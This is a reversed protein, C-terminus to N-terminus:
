GMLSRTSDLVKDIAAILIEPKIPKTVYDDMGAALCKEREGQMASATLAIIPLHSQDRERRRIERTAEYGDMEPMHCDMLILDYAIHTIAELVELGNAVVNVRYGLKEMQRQAVRQNIVNDEAILIKLPAQSAPAPSPPPSAEAAQRSAEREQGAVGLVSWITKRLQKEKLPKVVQAAIEQEHLQPSPRRNKFPTLLVIPVRAILADAKISRAVELGDLDPMRSALIMVDYPEGERAAERLSDLASRGSDVTTPRMEWATTWQSIILRNISSDDAILVRKGNSLAPLPVSVAGGARRKSLRVTFWFTAGQGPESEVGIEGGMIQVLQRSIALGLGTGGYRRTTSTDAQSFSQFLRSKGEASLGIGTDIVEFRLLVGEDIESDVKVDLLVEGRETFKIANGILNLLVQRIRGPDGHLENPVNPRVLCALELGKAEAREILLEVVEQTARRLDFDIAELDLRGAEIKSFDLIDNVITLLADASHRITTTYDHQEGTLETDLLLGAMGIVGNMPTRIEHSMNALFESKARTAMEAAEKAAALEGVAEHLEENRQEVITKATELELTREKIRASLQLNHRRLQRVRLRYLGVGVMCVAVTCATYFWGTQYFRPAIYFSVSAGTNNWVGDSNCAIVRFRYKGPSLNTYYAVRRGGAEIWEENLGELQYKFKIREPAIFSLATYHIELNGDGPQMQLYSSPDIKRGNTVVEEIHIPPRYQNPLLTKPDVVVPGQATAFWLKGDRTRIGQPQQGAFCVDTAMGNKIGYSECVISKVRGESYANLDAKAVRFIGRNGSMWLYGRDDEVVHNVLNEYLGMDATYSSFRGDRYRSLGNRTAFWLTGDRDGYISLVFNGALGDRTTFTRFRGDKLYGLGDLTGIWYAGQQDQHIARIGDHPLGDKKTYNVVRDRTFKYLGSGASGVWMAGGRDRYIIRPEIPGLGERIVPTFRGDQYTCLTGVTGIWVNGEADESLAKVIDGALGDPKLYRTILGDRYAFLGSPGNYWVTGRSDQFVVHSQGQSKGEYLINRFQGDRLRLLGDAGTGVWLSGERDSCASTTNNPSFLGGRNVYLEPKGDKLRYLGNGVMWITGQDDAHVRLRRVLSPEIGELVVETLAGDKLQLIRGEDMTFWISGDPLESLYLVERGLQAEAYPVFRGDKFLNIGKVTAVWIRGQADCHIDRISRHLLGDKPEYSTFRGDRYRSVGLDTALWLNGDRDPAMARVINSILGQETTYTTFKGDQLRTLGGGYTAIWLVGDRDELLGHVENDKLSGDSNNFLVFRVGDFRCLGGRTGLWIYGDRTQIMSLISSQPLGEPVRWIDIAYEALDKNPDLALAAGHLTMVISAMLWALRLSVALRGSRLTHFIALYGESLKM